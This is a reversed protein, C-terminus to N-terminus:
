IELMVFYVTAAIGSVISALHILNSARSNRKRDAKRAKGKGSEMEYIGKNAHQVCFGLLAEFIGLFGLYFPIFLYLKSVPHFGNIITFAWGWVGVSFFFLGYALKVFRKRIGINRKGPRYKEKM